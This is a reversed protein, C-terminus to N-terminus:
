RRQIKAKLERIKACADLAAQSIGDPVVPDDAFRRAIERYVAIAKELENDKELKQAQAKLEEAAPGKNKAKEAASVADEFKKQLDEPFFEAKGTTRLTELYVRAMLFDGDEVAKLAAAIYKEALVATEKMGFGAKFQQMERELDRSATALNSGMFEAVMAAAESIFSDLRQLVTERPSDEKLAVKFEKWRDSLDKHRRASEDKLQGLRKNWAATRDPFEGYTLIGEELLTAEMGKHGKAAAEQIQKDMKEVLALRQSPVPSFTLIMQRTGAARSPPYIRFALGEATEKAEVSSDPNLSVTFIRGRVALVIEVVENKREFAGQFKWENQQKDYLRVPGGSKVMFGLALDDQGPGLSGIHYTIRVNRGDEARTMTQSFEVPPAGELDKLSGKVVYGGGEDDPYGPSLECMGQVGVAGSAKELSLEGGWLSPAEDAKASVQFVGRENSRLRYEESEVYPWKLVLAQDEGPLDKWDIQELLLDDVWVRGTPGASFVSLEMRLASAGSPRAPPLFSSSVQEFRGSGQPAFASYSDPYVARGSEDTWRLRFCTMGDVREAKFFGTVRFVQFSSEVPFPKSYTVAVMRRPKDSTKGLLLSHKGESSVGEVVEIDAPVGCTWGQLPSGSAAAEFGPNSDLLNRAVPKDEPEEPKPVISDKLALFVALCGTLLIIVVALLAMTSKKMPVGTKLPKDADKFTIISEGIFVNDGHDLPTKASIKQGKVWTGNTSGLDEIFFQRGETFIRAHEASVLPNDVCLQNRKDRGVHLELALRLRKEKVDGKTKVILSPPKRGSPPSPRDAARFMFENYAVEICDGHHIWVEEVKAGNCWTGNTSGLDRLLWKDNHRFIEAHKGSAEGHRIVIDTDENRGFVAKDSLEFQWGKESGRLVLLSPKDPAPKGEPPIKAAGKAAQAASPEAQPGAAPAPAAAPAVLMRTNGIKVADGTKIVATQVREENVFVGSASQLDEISVGGPVPMFRAHRRSVTSDLLVITNDGERGVTIEGTVPFSKGDMIGGSIVLAFEAAPQPPPWGAPPKEEEIPLPSIGMPPTEHEPPKPAQAPPKEEPQVAPSPAEKQAEGAPRRETEDSPAAPAEEDPVRTVTERVLFLVDCIEVADGKTLEEEGQLFAGNVRIVGGKSVDKVYLKGNHERFEAHSAAVDKESLVIDSRPASGVAIRGVVPFLKGDLTGGMIMLMPTVAVKTKSPPMRKRDPIEEAPRGTEEVFITSDGVLVTDNHVLVSKPVKKGNVKVGMASQLDEVNLKGGELFFRAHHRSVTRAMLVIDNDKERGITLERAVDFTKPEAGRSTVRLRFGPKSEQPPPEGAGKKKEAEFMEEVKEIPIPQLEAEEASEPPRDVEEPRTVPPPPVYEAAKAPAEQDATDDSPVEWPALEEAPEKPAPPQPKEMPAVAPERPEAPTGVTLTSEDEGEKLEWPAAPEPKAAAPEPKAPPPLEQERVPEPEPPRPAAVAPGEPEPVRAPAPAPPPPQVAPQPAVRRATEMYPEGTAQILFTTDGLQFRDGDKLMKEKVPEGNVTVVRDPHFNMLFYGLKTITLFVQTPSVDKHAVVIDCSDSSGISIRKKEPKLTQGTKENLIQFM